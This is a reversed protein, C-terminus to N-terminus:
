RRSENNKKNKSDSAFQMLSEINEDMWEGRVHIYSRMKELAEEYSQPSRDLPRLLGNEQEFTYGWKEYNRAVADGLYAVTEDIYRNLYEESLYTKRLERYRDVIQGTFEPCKTLMVYWPQFTTAFTCPDMVSDKYNDVASNFDWVCLRLLGDVDKYVYTSLWGADYNSTFENIVFYDVFSQVDIFSPYGHLDDKYDFSYLIREFHSFDQEIKYKIEPTLNATGPYVADIKSSLNRYTYISFVDLNKLETSGRDMRICYGMFTQNKKQVSLNLRSNEVQGATITEVMVYVGMYEGNLIMECFRVNPAYDMIEGSINYWMYNRILTQDLFPGHLVWEHHADMGMVAHSENEGLENVFTLSYGLKDHHRSSNGRVRIRASGTDSAEDTLHNNLLPDDFINVTALIDKEGTESLTPQELGNEDVYFKGPIEKGGTNIELLPLHTCFSGDTHECVPKPSAELHQHYREGKSINPTEQIAFAGVVSLCLSVAVVIWLIRYKM